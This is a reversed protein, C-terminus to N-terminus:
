SYRNVVFSSNMSPLEVVDGDYLERCHDRLCDRNNVRIPLRIYQSVDKRNTFYVFQNSRPFLKYEFLPLISDHNSGETPNTSTSTAVPTLFGIQTVPTPDGRTRENIPVGLIPIISPVTENHIYQLGNAREVYTTMATPNQVSPPQSAVTRLTSSQEYSTSSDISQMSKEKKYQMPPLMRYSALAVVIVCLLAIISFASLCISGPPCQTLLDAGGGSFCVPPHRAHM